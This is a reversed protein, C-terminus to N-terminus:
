KGNLKARYKDANEILDVISKARIVRGKRYDEEGERIDKLLEEESILDEDAVLLNNIYQSVSGFGRKRARKKINMEMEESMSVSVVKRM